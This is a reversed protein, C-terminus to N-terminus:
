QGSRGKGAPHLLAQRERALEGKAAMLARQEDGSSVAIQQQLEQMRAEVDRRQLKMLSWEVDAPAEAQVLLAQVLEQQGESLEALVDSLETTASHSLLARFLAAYRADRFGDPGFREAVREVWSRERLMVRLLEREVPEEDEGARPMGETARWEPGANRRRKWEGPPVWARKAPRPANGPPPGYAGPDDSHAPPGDHPRSHSAGGGEASGGSGGASPRGGYPSPAPADAEDALLAKDLSSADALRSLYLDRTLPDKTARVTPLLKDVARRRRHLDSFWGKRTLLEVQMDFVDVAEHLASELAAVGQTRVYTDPDEGPPLSVVRVAAGHRLLELGSRFTAKLGAEDSDYLLFVEPAYRVILAAQEETLATGLPAVVEEIGALSVRVVDLYGEVVLLRKARRAANRALHMGYLVQRKHFVASEGSNLYKPQMDGLARGGFAVHRSLEDVIPFMLRGRFRPRGVTEEDRLVLLGAEVLRDHDIGLTALHKILLQGDRPAFGIGFRAIAEDSIGRGDLYRRAQEGMQEDRLQAAFFEAANALASWNPENSDPKHARSPTDVVEIGTKEGLLKVAGIFDLGLRKRLFGIADGSEHCVFCHYQGRKASVSFNANKGQHFPCPGRFDTGVRKLKVFEGIVQVIDAAARVREVTEDAIM